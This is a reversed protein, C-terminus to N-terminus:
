VVLVHVDSSELVERFDVLSTISDLLLIRIPARLVRQLPPLDTICVCLCVYSHCSATIGGLPLIWVPLLDMPQDAVILM